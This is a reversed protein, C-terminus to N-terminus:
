SLYPTPKIEKEKPIYEKIFHNSLYVTILKELVLAIGYFILQDTSNEVGRIVNFLAVVVLIM